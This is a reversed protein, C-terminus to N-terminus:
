RNQLKQILRMDYVETSQHYISCISKICDFLYNSASKDIIDKEAIFYERSKMLEVYKKKKEWDSIYSWWYKEEIFTTHYMDFRYNSILIYDAANRLIAEDLTRMKFLKHEM